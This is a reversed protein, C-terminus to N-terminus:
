CQKVGQRALTRWILSHLTKTAKGELILFSVRKDGICLRTAMPQTHIQLKSSPDHIDIYFWIGDDSPHPVGSSWGGKKEPPHTHFAYDIKVSETSLNKTFSFEQLQPFDSKLEEIDRAVSMLISLDDQAVAPAMGSFALVFSALAHFFGTKM